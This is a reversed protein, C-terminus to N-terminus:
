SGGSPCQGVPSGLEHVAVRLPGTTVLPLLPLKAATSPNSPHCILRRLEVRVTAFPGIVYRSDARFHYADLALVAAVGVTVAALKPASLRYGSTLEGIGLALLVTGSYVFRNADYQGSRLLGVLAWLTLAGGAFAIARRPVGRRAIVLLVIVIAALAAPVYSASRLGSLGAAASNFARLLALPLHTLSTSSLSLQTDGGPVAGKIARLSGPTQLNPRVALFWVVYALAPAAFVWWERWPRRDLLTDLAVVVLVAIAPGSTGLAILLLACSAPAEWRVREDRLLLIGLLCALPIVWVSDYSWILVSYGNALFLIPVTILLALVPQLRRRLYEFVLAALVIHFLLEIARYIWYHHLGLVAFLLRYLAVLLPELNGNHPAFFAPAGGSRRYLIMGWDDNNFTWARGVRIIVVAAVAALLAFALWTWQRRLRVSRM